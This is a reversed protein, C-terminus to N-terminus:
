NKKQYKIRRYIWKINRDYNICRSINGDNFRQYKLSFEHSCIHRKFSSTKEYIDDIIFKSNIRTYCLRHSKSYFINTESLKQDLNAKYIEPLSHVFSRIIIRSIINIM